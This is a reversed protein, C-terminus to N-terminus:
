HDISKEWELNIKWQESCINGIQTAWDELTRKEVYAHCNRRLTPWDIQESLVRQLTTALADVNGPPVLWGHEGESGIVARAAGVESALVPLGHAMADLWAKSFGETLSPQVCIDAALFQKSLLNRDLQGAFHVIDECRHKAVVRELEIRQSGDGALTLHPLPAFNEQKLKALAEILTLVGKEPSLRGAYILRPPTAIGRDFIPYIKQLEAQSLVSVFIWHMNTAPASEGEGTALMVNRGGAFHRMIAKTIRNMVTTQNTEVWSSGYRAILPKRLFLAVLMGLLPIDGPLPIHVVDSRWVYKVIMNLYYPLNALVSFKRRADQGVPLRLPIVKVHSPLPIGGPRPTGCTILLTMESFLSGIAAM